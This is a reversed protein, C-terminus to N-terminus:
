HCVPMNYCCEKLCTSFFQREPVCTGEDNYREMKSSLTTVLASDTVVCGCDITDM